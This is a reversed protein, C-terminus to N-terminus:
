TRVADREHHLVKCLDDLRLAELLEDRRGGSGEDDEEELFGGFAEQERRMCDHGALLRAAVRVAHMPMELAYVLPIATRMGGSHAEGWFGERGNAHAGHGVTSASAPRLRVKGVGLSREHQRRMRADHGRAQTRVSFCQDRESWQTTSPTSARPKLRARPHALFMWRLTKLRM